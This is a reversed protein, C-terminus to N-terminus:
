RMSRLARAHSALGFMVMVGSLEPSAARSRPSSGFPQSAAGVPHRLGHSARREPEAQGRVIPTGQDSHILRLRAALRPPILNPTPHRDLLVSHSERLKDIPIGIRELDLQILQSGLRLLEQDVLSLTRSGALVLAAYTPESLLSCVLVALAKALLARPGGQVVTSSEAKFLWTLSSVQVVSSV